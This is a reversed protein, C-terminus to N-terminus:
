GKSYFGIARLEGQQYQMLACGVAYKSADCVLVFPGDGYPGCLVVQDCLESLLRRYAEQLEESEWKARQKMLGSFPKTLASFNPVFSRVFGCSALFSRLEKSNCPERANRLGDIREPQPRYGFECLLHGLLPCEVPFIESKELKFYVGREEAAAFVSELLVLCEDISNGFIVIDDIYIRVQSCCLHGFISDMCRQFEAPSNRM